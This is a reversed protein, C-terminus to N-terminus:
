EEEEVIFKSIYGEDSDTLFQSTLKARPIIATGKLDGIQTLVELRYTGDDNLYAHFETM